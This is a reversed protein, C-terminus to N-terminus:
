ERVLKIKNFTSNEPAVVMDLEGCNSVTIEETYVLPNPNKIENGNEDTGTILEPDSADKDTNYNNFVFVTKVPGEVQLNNIHIREPLYTTYGFYHPVWGGTIM